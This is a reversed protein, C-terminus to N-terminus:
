KKQGMLDDLQPLDFLNRDVLRDLQEEITLEETREMDPSVSFPEDYGLIPIKTTDERQPLSIMRIRSIDIETQLLGNILRVRMHDSADDAKFESPNAIYGSDVTGDDLHVSIFKTLYPLFEEPKM